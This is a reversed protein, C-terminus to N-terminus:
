EPSPPTEHQIGEDERLDTPVVGAETWKQRIRELKREVTRRACDLERSIELPSYGELTLIAIRRSNPELLDLMEQCNEVVMNAMEPTPEDSLVQGIGVERDSEPNTGMFISEGRVRGGGRKQAYARRRYSTAKRATITVLLKWLENRNRLGEFKHQKMGTVFSMLASLAVDEDAVARQAMGDLKRSAVRVLSEFYRDWLAEIAQDDGEAIKPFLKSVQQREEM